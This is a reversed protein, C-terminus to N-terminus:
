AAIRQQINFVNRGIGHAAIVVDARAKSSTGGCARCLACVTKKGAEASAPCVVEREEVPESETRVRFVRYGKARAEIREGPSDASAMVLEAFGPNCNRWQHTYGTARWLEIPVAAPDGYSGLRITRGSGLAAIGALDTVPPYIGRQYARWVSAPAQSVNVYCSRNRGNKGRHPCAGCISSDQGVRIADLPHMDERLIWTQAMKGTKTNISRGSLGTIVVIIPSGDLLSPGCYLIAGNPKTTM